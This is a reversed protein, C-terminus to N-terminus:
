PTLKAFLEAAWEDLALASPHLGDRALMKAEAQRRMLPFLDVYRAGMRESEERLASNFLVIDAALQPPAGFSAAAPSRSWDPQPLTVIQQPTVGADVISQLIGRVHSRYVDVSWGHVRDNAGVALTVLTPHFARVEPVERAAVDDTTYGNVALNKLTVRRDHARWRESLRSPFADSPLNGTGATFSDGLALYRVEPGPGADVAGSRPTGRSCGVLASVLIVAGVVVRM